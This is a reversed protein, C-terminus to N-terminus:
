VLRSDVLSEIEDCLVSRYKLPLARLNILAEKLPKGPEHCRKTDDNLEGPCNGDHGHCQGVWKCFM